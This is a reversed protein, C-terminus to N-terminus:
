RPGRSRRKGAKAYDGHRIKQTPMCVLGGAASQGREFHWPDGALAWDIAVRDTNYPM